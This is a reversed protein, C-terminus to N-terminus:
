KFISINLHSLLYLVQFFQAQKKLFPLPRHTLHSMSYGDFDVIVVNGTIFMNPELYYTCFM